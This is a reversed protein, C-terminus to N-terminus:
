AKEDGGEVDDFVDDDDDALDTGELGGACISVKRTGVSFIAGPGLMSMYVLAVAASYVRPGGKLM